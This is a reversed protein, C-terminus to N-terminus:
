YIYKLILIITEVFRTISLKDIIKLGTLFYLYYYRSIRERPMMNRGGCTYIHLKYM